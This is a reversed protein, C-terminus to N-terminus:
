EALGVELNSTRTLEERIEKKLAKTPLSPMFDDDSDLEVTSTDKMGKDENDGVASSKVMEKDEDRADTKDKSILENLNDSNLAGENHLDGILETNNTEADDKFTMDNMNDYEQDDNFDAILDADTTFLHSDRYEPPLTYWSHDKYHQKITRLIHKCLVHHKKWDM